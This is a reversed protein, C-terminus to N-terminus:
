KFEKLTVCVALSLGSHEQTGLGDRWFRGAGGSGRM